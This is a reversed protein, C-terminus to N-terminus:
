GCIRIRFSFDNSNGNGGFSACEGRQVEIWPPVAGNRQVIRNLLFEERAIFPNGENHHRALPKGRGQVSDFYGAVRAKQGRENLIMHVSM